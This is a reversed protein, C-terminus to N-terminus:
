DDLPNYDDGGGGSAQRRAKLAELMEAMSRGKPAQRQWFTNLYTKGNKETARLYVRKGVISPILSDAADSTLRLLLDACRPVKEGTLKDLDQLSIRLRTPLQADDVPDMEDILGPLGISVLEVVPDAFTDLRPALSKAGEVRGSIQISLTLMDNGDRDQELGAAIVLGGVVKGNNDRDGYIEGDLYAGVTRPETAQESM